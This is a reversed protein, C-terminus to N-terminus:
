KIVTGVTGTYIVVTGVGTGVTGVRHGHFDLACTIAVRGHHKYSNQGLARERALSRDSSREDMVKCAILGTCFGLESSM